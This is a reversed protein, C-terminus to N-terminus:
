IKAYESFEQGRDCFFSVMSCVLGYSMGSHGQGEIITKAQKLTCGKNLKKVIDLCMELEMGRYLDRLRIPVTKNWEEIYKVDLVKLGEKMWKRTLKPIEKEHRRKEQQYEEHRIREKEDFEAKTVGTIKLFASEMNDIDSYLTTGNFEISVLEGKERYHNLKDVANHINGIWFDIKKYIKM